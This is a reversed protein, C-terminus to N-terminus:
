AFSSTRSNYELYLQKTTHNTYLDAVNFKKSMTMNNPLDMIYANDSIKKVIKLPGYAKLKFKNYASAPIIETQLYMMVMDGECFIKKRRKKDATTKYKANSKELKLRVEEQVDLIQEAM